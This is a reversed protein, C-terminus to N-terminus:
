VMRKAIKRPTPFFQLEEQRETYNERHSTDVHFVFGKEKERWHGGMTEIIPKLEDYEDDTLKEEPRVVLFVKDKLEITYKM